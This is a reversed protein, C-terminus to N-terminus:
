RRTGPVTATSDTTPVPANVSSPFKIRDQFLVGFHDVVGPSPSALNVGLVWTKVVHEAYARMSVDFYLRGHAPQVVVEDLSGLVAAARWKTVGYGHSCYGFTRAVEIGPAVERVDENGRAPACIGLHLLGDAAAMKMGKVLVESADRVEPHLAVDDEFFFRWSNMGATSDETFERLLQTHAMRNSFMKLHVPNSHYERSGHTFSYLASDVVKSNYPWPIHQHPTLNLATLAASAFHFREEQNSIIFGHLAGVEVRPPTLLEGSNTTALKRSNALISNNNCSTYTIQLGGPFGDNRFSAVEILVNVGMVILVILSVQMVISGCDM